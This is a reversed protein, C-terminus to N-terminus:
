RNGRLRDVLARLPKTMRWSTSNRLAEIEATLHVIQAEQPENLLKAMQWLERQRDGAEKELRARLTSSAELKATLIKIQGKMDRTLADRESTLADRERTLADQAVVGEDLKGMLAALEAAQRDLRVRQEANQGTLRERAASQEGIIRAMEGLERRSAQESQEFNELRQVLSARAIEQEAARTQTEELAKEAVEARELAQDAEHRRQALASRGQALDNRAVELEAQLAERAEGLESVRAEREKVREELVAFRQRSAELEAQLAERAKGLEGVRAEREKVREELVAFRQRAAELETQLVERAKGLEGVRAETEKMQSELRTVREREAGLDSRLRPLAGPEGLMQGFLPEAANLEQRIRDLTEYDSRNEGQAVWREMIEFTDRVWSSLVPNSVVRDALVDFHRLDLALFDDIMAASQSDFHPFTLKLASGVQEITKTWNNLLSAYSTFHRLGERTAAEAELVHRLWILCGEALDMGDRAKLSQAVELPNRHTLLPLAQYGAEKAAELWFPVLRCIRPEKLLVLPAGEYEDRLIDVAEPLFARGAVSGMWHPQVQRWDRWNSRAERLLRDNFEQVARNEFHGKPNGAHDPVLTKPLSCGLHHLVGGLASTGSRHMGLVLVMYKSPNESETMIPKKKSMTFIEQRLGIENAGESVM